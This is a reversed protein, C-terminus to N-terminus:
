YKVWNTNENDWYYKDGDWDDALLLGYHLVNM